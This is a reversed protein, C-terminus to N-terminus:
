HRMMVTVIISSSYGVKPQFFAVKHDMNSNAAKRTWVVIQFIIIHVCNIHPRNVISVYAVLPVRIKTSVVVVLLLNERVVM